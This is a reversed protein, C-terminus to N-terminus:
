EGDRIKNLEYGFRERYEEDNRNPPDYGMIEYYRDARDAAEQRDERDDSM